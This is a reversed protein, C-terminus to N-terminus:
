RSDAAIISPRPWLSCLCAVLSRAQVNVYHSHRLLGVLQDLTMWRYGPYEPEVALDTEIILYRNRAHYFRGGEESLITDYRIRDPEAALVDSLFRPRAAAPLDSYNMPTCQVTPALEIVDTYGAEVRAQMLLHLVGNIRRVLFAVIGMGHPEIVPQDWHGVERGGAEVALGIVDFFRGSRHSIRGDTYQWDPLSGLPVTRTSVDTRSRVDTIWSLISQKTHLSGQGPSCSRIVSDAFDAETRAFVAGLDAHAFPLCSLVTRADMNIMDDVALLDQVQGLTLWCFGDDVEVDETTEVVMNRNRKQHFASGQESQRVDVIVRHPSADRFHDLYPVPRGHHVRTYNSKTAQVTPSLQLGNCNGPEAKAQMLFHLVGDFEKALIGLVGVEPQNIIPQSWRPVPSSPICVDLGEITFFKGSEHVINGTVPDRNWRDLRELPIREAHAYARQGFEAFWQRFDPLQETAGPSLASEAIRLPTRGEGALLDTMFDGGV